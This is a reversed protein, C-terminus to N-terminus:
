RQTYVWDTKRALMHCGWCVADKGALQFRAGASTRTFEEWRWDGHKPDAGRQKRMIAILGVFRKGPEVGQKVIITGYPYRGRATLKSTYVNKRGFHASSPSPAIPRANVKHWKKYPQADKPIGPLGSATSFGVALTAAGAALVLVRM